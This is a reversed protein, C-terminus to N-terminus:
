ADPVELFLSSLGDHLEAQLVFTPVNDQTIHNARNIVRQFHDKALGFSQSRFHQMGKKFDAQMDRYIATKQASVLTITFLCLLFINISKKGM